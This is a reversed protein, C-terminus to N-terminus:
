SIDDTKLEIGFSQIVEFYNPYSKAVAEAGEITGGTLSCLLSLAMVIRHDNHGFLIDTPPTIAGPLISVSNEDIETLIGFKALEQAMASCRDSEKMRLRATGTFQAGGLAASLAFMVPGLDPCDSLDFERKGSALDTFMQKYVWDGQPTKPSLASVKVDGKLLNFADLFAANSYDGEVCYRDCVFSQRGCISYVNQERKVTVGFASLVALTIAVYSASEFNGTVEVRSEGPVQSLALLLGTIFQSSVNGPISYTGSQLRGCVTLSNHAQIYLFGKDQCLQQYVGMPREMLRGQGQLIVKKGSLLCLPLLFRLTSGSEGCDLVTEEPINHPNLGFINITNESKEITAGLAQLCRLTAKIDQSDGCNELTCGKTLAGCILARHAISKSPPASVHGVARSPLITVRM